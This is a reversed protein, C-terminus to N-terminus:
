LRDTRKQIKRIAAEAAYAIDANSHKLCASIYKLADKDAINGLMELAAKLIEPEDNSLMEVLSRVAKDRGKDNLLKSLRRRM